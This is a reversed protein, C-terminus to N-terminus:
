PISAGSASQKEFHAYVDPAHTADFLKAYAHPMTDAVMIADFHAVVEKLTVRGEAVVHM